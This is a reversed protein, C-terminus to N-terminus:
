GGVRIDTNDGKPREEAPLEGEAQFWINEAINTVHDGIREINKAIFLFHTCPSIAKPDEMMYTLLERFLSTYRADLEVDRDRVALAKAPDDHAYAELVERLMSVAYAVMESLGQVAARPQANSLALSRKAVNAGYDGIREIDAAIRLSAMVRRLDGAMPQRLALLRLVDGSVELELADIRADGAVVAEALASDNDELARMGEGVQEAALEGMRLIEGRLRQLEEDYSKVIHESRTNM